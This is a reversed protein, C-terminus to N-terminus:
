VTIPQQDTLQSFIYFRNKGTRKAVYMAQDAHRMLSEANQDEQRYICVGISAGLTISKEQLLIPQAVTILLRELTPLLEEEKALGPLL